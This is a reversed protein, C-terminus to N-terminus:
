LSLCFDLCRGSCVWRYWLQSTRAFRHRNSRFYLVSIIKDQVASSFRHCRERKGPYLGTQTNQLALSMIYSNEFELLYVPHCPQPNLLVQPLFQKLFFHPRTTTLFGPAGLATFPKWFGTPASFIAECHCTGLGVKGGQKETALCGQPATTPYYSHPFRNVVSVCSPFSPMWVLLGKQYVGHDQIMAKGQSKNNTLGSTLLVMSLRTSDGIMATWGEKRGHPPLVPKTHPEMHSDPRYILSAAM